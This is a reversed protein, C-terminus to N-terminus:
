GDRRSSEASDSVHASTRDNLQKWLTRNIEKLAALDSKLRIIQEELEPVM